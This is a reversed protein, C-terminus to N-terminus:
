GSFSRKSTAGFKTTTYFKLSRFKPLKYPLNIPSQSINKISNELYKSKKLAGFILGTKVSPKTYQLLMYRTTIKLRKGFIM